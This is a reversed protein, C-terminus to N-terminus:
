TRYFREKDKVFIRIGFKSHVALETKVDIITKHRVSKYNRKQQLNKKM